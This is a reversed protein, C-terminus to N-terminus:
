EEVGAVEHGRSRLETALSMVLFDRRAIAEEDDRVTASRTEASRMDEPIASVTVQLEGFGVSVITALIRYRAM